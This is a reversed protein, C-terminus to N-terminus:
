LRFMSKRPRKWDAHHQPIGVTRDDPDKGVRYRTDSRRFRACCEIDFVEIMIDFVCEIDVNQVKSIMQRYRLYDIDITVSNSISPSLGEIDFTMSLTTSISTEYRRYRVYIMRYRICIDYVIDFAKRVNSISYKTMFYRLRYRIRYLMRGIDNVASRFSGKGLRPWVCIV